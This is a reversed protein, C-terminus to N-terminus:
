PTTKVGNAKLVVMKSYIEVVQITKLLINDIFCRGTEKPPSFWNRMRRELLPKTINFDPSKDPWPLHQLQDQHELQGPKIIMVGDKECKLM